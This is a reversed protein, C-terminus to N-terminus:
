ASKKTGKNRLRFLNVLQPVYDENTEIALYNAQYKQCIRMLVEQNEQYQAHYHRRFEEGSTNLWLTRGTEKDLIPVIGMPPLKHERLDVLHLVILDHRRALMSLEKEYNNDIFDSLLLIISRRKIIDLTLRIGAALGTKISKPQLEQLAKIISYAQEIGKAPKIYKEKQDSICIMGIQSQQRAASLALVGCIEKGIDLKQQEGTGIKQSASVDLMLFVLQEKEERYTKVFTGHGKASVNWDISRVDDGYQYARVDDFELGTGKFVSHFDGQMQSTIAKRIRIEYKRLKKVLEKM